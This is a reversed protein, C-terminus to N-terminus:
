EGGDRKGLYGVFRGYIHPRKKILKRLEDDTIPNEGYLMDLMAKNLDAAKREAAYYLDKQTTQM